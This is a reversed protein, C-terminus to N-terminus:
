ELLAMWFQALSALILFHTNNPKQINALEHTPYFELDM